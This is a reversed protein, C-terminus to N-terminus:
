PEDQLAAHLRQGVAVIDHWRGPLHAGPQYRWAMWGHSTWEGDATRLPVSVRLDDRGDLQTLLEAQWRLASLPMDLPKLVVQGVLWSRGQGGHLPVPGSKLNFAALVTASPPAGGPPVEVHEM